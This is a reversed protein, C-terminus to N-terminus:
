VKRREKFCIECLAMTMAAVTATFREKFRGYYDLIKALDLQNPLTLQALKQKHDESRQLIDLERLARSLLDMLRRDDRLYKLEYYYQKNEAHIVLYHLVNVVHKVAPDGVVETLEM